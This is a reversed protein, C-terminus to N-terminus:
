KEAFELKRWDFRYKKFLLYAILVIAPLSFYYKLLRRPHLHWVGVEVKDPAIVTGALSINQGVQGDPFAEFRATFEHGESKVIMTKSEPEVSIIETYQANLQAPFGLQGSLIAAPPLDISPGFQAAYFCLVFIIGGLILMKILRSKESFM